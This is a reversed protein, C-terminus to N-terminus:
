CNQQGQLKRVFLKKRVYFRPDCDIVRSLEDLILFSWRPGDKLRKQELEFSTKFSPSRCTVRVQNDYHFRM